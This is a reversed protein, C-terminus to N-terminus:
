HSKYDYYDREMISDLVCELDYAEDNDMTEDEMAEQIKIRLDQLSSAKEYPIFNSKLVSIEHKTLMLNGVKVFSHSATDLNKVLTNIDYEKGNLRM